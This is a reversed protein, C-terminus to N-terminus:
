SSAPPDGADAHLRHGHRVLGRRHHGARRGPRAAAPLRPPLRRTHQDHIRAPIRVPQDRSPHALSLVVLRHVVTKHDARAAGSTVSDRRGLSTSGDPHSGQDAGSGAYGVDQWEGRCRRRVETTSAYQHSHVGARVGRPQLGAGGRASLSKGHVLGDHQAAFRLSISHHSKAFFWFIVPTLVTFRM